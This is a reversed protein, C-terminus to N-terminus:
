LRTCKSKPSPKRLANTSWRTLGLVKTQLTPSRLTDIDVNLRKNQDEDGVILESCQIFCRTVAHISSAAPIHRKGYKTFHRGSSDDVNNAWIFGHLIECVVRLRCVGRHADWGGPTRGRIEPLFLLNCLNLTWLSCVLSICVLLARVMCLGTPWFKGDKPWRFTFTKWSWPTRGQGPAECSSGALPEAGSRRQACRGLGSVSLWFTYVHAKSPTCRKKNVQTM